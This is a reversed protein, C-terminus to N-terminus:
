SVTLFMHVAYIFSISLGLRKGAYAQVIRYCEIIETMLKHVPQRQGDSQHIHDATDDLFACAEFVAEMLKAM